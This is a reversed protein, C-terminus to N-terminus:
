HLAKWHGATSVEFDGFDRVEESFIPRFAKCTM